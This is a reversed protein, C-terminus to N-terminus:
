PKVKVIVMSNGNAGSVVTTLKGKDIADLIMRGTQVKSPDASQVLLAARDDVWLRTRQLPLGFDDGPNLEIAGDANLPKGTRM